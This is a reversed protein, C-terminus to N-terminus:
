LGLGGTIGDRVWWWVRYREISAVGDWVWGHMQYVLRLYVCVEARTERPIHRPTNVIHQVSKM